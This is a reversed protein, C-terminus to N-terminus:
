RNHGARLIYILKKFVFFLFFHFLTSSPKELYRFEGFDSDSFTDLSVRYVRYFTVTFSFSFVFFFVVFFYRFGSFLLERYPLFRALNPLLPRRGIQFGAATSKEALLAGLNRKWLSNFGVTLDFSDLQRDLRDFTWLVSVFSIHFCLLDLRM